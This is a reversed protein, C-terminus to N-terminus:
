LFKVISVILAVASLWHAVMWKILDTKDKNMKEILEIKDEKTLFTRVQDDIEKKAESQVFEVLVQAEEQGMKKALANYLTIESVSM